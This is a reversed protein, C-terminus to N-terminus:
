AATPHLVAAYGAALVAVIPAPTLVRALGSAPRPLPPGYGDPRYPFLQDGRVLLAGGDGDAIFTGDPLAALPAEHVRQRRDATLRARHLCADMDAARPAPPLGAADWAARFRTYDARRCAACPRHGAALAVAEDLFFLETWTGPSMVARHRGRFDLRCCIWLASTWRRRGLRGGEDHLIGRNGTFLGRGPHAVIRSLPTVRNQRPM